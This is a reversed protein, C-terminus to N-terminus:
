YYHQEMIPSVLEEGALTGKQNRSYKVNRERVIAAFLLLTQVCISHLNSFKRIM